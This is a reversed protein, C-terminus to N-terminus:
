LSLLNIFVAIHGSLQLMYSVGGILTSGAILLVTNKNCIQKYSVKKQIFLSALFSLVAKFIGTLMVFQSASVTIYNVEIQHMKSVISVLGNLVFVIACMLLQKLNAKDKSLNCIVVSGILLILGILTNISLQENLFIM